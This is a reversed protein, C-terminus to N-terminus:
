RGGGGGEEGEVVEESWGGKVQSQGGGGPPPEGSGGWRGGGGPGHAGGGGRLGEGRRAVVDLGNPRRRGWGARRRKLWGGRSDFRLDRTRRGGKLCNRRRLRNGRDRHHLGRGGLLAARTAPRHDARVVHEAEEAPVPEASDSSRQVPGARSPAADGLCFYAAFARRGTSTSSTPPCRSRMTWAGRGTSRRRGSRAPWRACM